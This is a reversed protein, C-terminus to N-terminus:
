VAEKKKEHEESCEKGIKDMESNEDRRVNKPMDKRHGQM